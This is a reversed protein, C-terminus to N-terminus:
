QTSKFVIVADDVGSKVVVDVGVDDGGDVVNTIFPVVVVVVVFSCNDVVATIMFPVPVFDDDIEVNSTTSFDLCIRDFCIFGSSGFDGHTPSNGSFHGNTNSLHSFISSRQSYIPSYKENFFRASPDRRTSLSNTTSPGSPLVGNRISPRVTFFRSIM